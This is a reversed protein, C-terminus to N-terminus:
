VPPQFCLNWRVHRDPHPNYSCFYGTKVRAGLHRGLLPMAEAIKHISEKLRKTVASRAREAQSGARRNRGGLGVAAALHEVLLDRECQARTVREPDNFRRGEELETRLEALRRAYDAKARADLLPSADEFRVTRMGEEKQSVSSAVMAKVPVELIAILECVHFERGPHRLLCALCHLGRTAKLRAIQGQYQITWYDGQRVFVSEERLRLTPANTLSVRVGDLLAAAVEEPEPSAGGREQVLADVEAITERVIKLAEEYQASRLLAMAWAAAQIRTVDARWQELQVRDEEHEGYRKVFEILRLTRATDREARVWEKARFFHIFRNYYIAGENFLEACDKASLIFAEEADARKAAALRKLQFHLASEMGHPRLGDPRGDVEYEELGLPQRVLMIDHGDRGIVLRINQDPDYPWRRLYERLDLLRSV